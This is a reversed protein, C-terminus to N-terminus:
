GANDDDSKEGKREEQFTMQPPKPQTHIKHRKGGLLPLTWMSHYEAGKPTLDSQYCYLNRVMTQGFVRTDNEILSALSGAQTGKVRGITVHSQFPKDDLHFGASVLRNSVKAHLQELQEKGHDCGAWVVRPNLINPFVGIGTSTIEFPSFASTISKLMDKLAYAMPETIQGLFRITFHMNPPPVWRVGIGENKCSDILEAQREAIARVPEIDLKVALFCRVTKM